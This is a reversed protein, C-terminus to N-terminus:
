HFYFVETSQNERRKDFASVFSRFLYAGAADDIIRSTNLIQNDVSAYCFALSALLSKLNRARDVSM